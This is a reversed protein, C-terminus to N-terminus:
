RWRSRHSRRPPRRRRWRAPGRSRVRRVPGVAHYALLAKDTTAPNGRVGSVQV